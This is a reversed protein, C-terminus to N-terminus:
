RNLEKEIRIEVQPQEVVEVAEPGLADEVGHEGGLQEAPRADPEGRQELVVEANGDVLGALFGVPGLAGDGRFEEVVGGEVDPM